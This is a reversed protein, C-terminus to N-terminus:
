VAQVSGVVLLVLGPDVIQVVGLKQGLKDVSEDPGLEVRIEPQSTFQTKQRLFDVIVFSALVVVALDVLHLSVFALIAFGPAFQVDYLFDCHQQNGPMFGCSVSHSPGCENETQIHLFLFLQACVELTLGDVLIHNFVIDDDVTGDHLGHANQGCDFQQGSEPGFTAVL